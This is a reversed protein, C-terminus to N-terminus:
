TLEAQTKARSPRYRKEKAGESTGKESTGEVAAKYETEVKKYERLFLQV